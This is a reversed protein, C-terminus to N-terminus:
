TTALVPWNYWSNAIGRFDAVSVKNGQNGGLLKVGNTLAQVFFGVHFGGDGHEIVCIAGYRPPSTETASPQWRRASALGPRRPHGAQTMCWQIFCGCWPTEDIESMGKGDYSAVMNRPARGASADNADIRAAQALINIQNRRGDSMMNARIGPAQRIYELIRPNNRTGGIRERIDLNYERWAVTMWVPMEEGAPPAVQGIMQGSRRGQGPVRGQPGAQRTETQTPAAPGTNTASRISDNFGLASWCQNGCAGDVSFEDDERKKLKQFSILAQLTIRGFDGDAEFTKGRPFAQDLCDLEDTGAARILAGQMHMVHTGRKRLRLVPLTM